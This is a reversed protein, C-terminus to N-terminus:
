FKTDLSFERDKHTSGINAKAYESVKQEFFNSKGQLSILVMWPFPNQSGYYKRYGLAFLLRDACFEIYQSMLNDNMGLLHTPLAEKAFEQEIKVASTVIELM